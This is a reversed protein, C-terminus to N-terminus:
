SEPVGPVNLARSQDSSARRGEGVMCTSGITIEERLGQLVRSTITLLLPCRQGPLTLHSELEDYQPALDSISGM